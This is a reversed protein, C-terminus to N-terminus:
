RFRVRSAKPLHRTYWIVYIIGYLSLMFVYWVRGTLNQYTNFFPAIALKIQRVSGCCFLSIHLFSFIFFRSAWFFRVLWLATTVANKMAQCTVVTIQWFAADGCRVSPEVTTALNRWHSGWRVYAEKLWGFPIEIPEATKLPSVITVSLCVSLCVFWARGDTVIPRTQTTSRRPSIINLPDRIVCTFTFCCLSIEAAFRAAQRSSTRFKSNTLTSALLSTSLCWSASPPSSPLTPYWLEFRYM